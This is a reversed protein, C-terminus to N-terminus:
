RMRETLIVKKIAGNPYYEIEKILPCLGTHINGCYRCNNDDIATSVRENDIM